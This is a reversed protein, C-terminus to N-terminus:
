GSGLLKPPNGQELPFSHHNLLYWDAVLRLLPEILARALHQGCVSLFGVAVRSKVGTHRSFGTQCASQLTKDHM